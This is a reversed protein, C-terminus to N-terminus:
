FSMWLLMESDTTPPKTTTSPEAFLESILELDDDATPSQSTSITATSQLTLSNSFLEESVGSDILGQMWLIWPVSTIRGMSDLRLPENIPPPTIM